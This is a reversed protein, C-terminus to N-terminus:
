TRHKANVEAIRAVIREYTVDEVGRVELLAAGAARAARIGNHNDEVVLCEDPKLGLQAAAKLYIEPDPKAARVDENSLTFELYGALCTKEMIVSISEKISNSAVAIRYGDAKLRSLAYEHIFNPKCRQLVIEMTYVQKMEAIFPTLTRPLGRKEVLHDLKVRTPLGDYITEHDPVSIEYGFLLLARNLADFHWDRADVLVGDMDFVVARIM